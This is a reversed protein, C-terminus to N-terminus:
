ASRRPQDPWSPARPSASSATSTPSTGSSPRSRSRGARRRDARNTLGDAAMRAVRRESVTLAAMAETQVKRPQEGLRDLLRRVRSQLPWLEQRGAHEEASRLLALAGRRGDAGTRAHAAAPRGPRHRDPRGAARGHTGALSPGPARAPAPDPRPRRRRRGPHAARGGHRVALRPEPALEVHERALGAAEADGKRLQALAAGARWPLVDPDADPRSSRRRSRLARRRPRPTASPPPWSARPRTPWRRGGPGSRGAAPDLDDGLTMATPSTAAPWGATSAPPRAATALEVDPLPESARHRVERRRRARGHRRRGPRARISRARLACPPQRPRGSSRASPVALPMLM